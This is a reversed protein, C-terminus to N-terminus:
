AACVQRCCVLWHEESQVGLDRLVITHILCDVFRMGGGNVVQYRGSGASQGAGQAARQLRAPNRSTLPPQYRVRHSLYFLVATNQDDFADMHGVAKPRLGTLLGCGLPRMTEM